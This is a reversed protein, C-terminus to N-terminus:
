VWSRVCALCVNEWQAVGVGTSAVTRQQGRKPRVSVAELSRLGASRINTSNIQEEKAILAYLPKQARRMAQMKLKLM